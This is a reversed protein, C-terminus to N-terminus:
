KGAVEKDVLARELIDFTLGGPFYGKIQVSQGFTHLFEMVM